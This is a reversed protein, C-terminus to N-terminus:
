VKKVAARLAAGGLFVLVADIKLIQDASLANPNFSLWLNLLTGAATVLYTKKGDLFWVLRQIQALTKRM